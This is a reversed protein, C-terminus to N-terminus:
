SFSIFWGWMHKGPGFAYALEPHNPDDGVPVIYHAGHVHLKERRYSVVKGAPNPGSYKGPLLVAKQGPRRKYWIWYVKGNPGPPVSVSPSVMKGRHLSAM